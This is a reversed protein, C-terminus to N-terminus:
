RAGGKRLEIVTGATDAVESLEFSCSRSSHHWRQIRWFTRDAHSERRLTGWAIRDGHPDVVEVCRGELATLEMEHTITM